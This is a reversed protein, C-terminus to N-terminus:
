AAPPRFPGPLLPGCHRNAASCHPMWLTRGSMRQRDHQLPESDVADRLEAETLTAEGAPCVQTAVGSQLDADTSVKTSVKACGEHVAAQAHSLPGSPEGLGWLGLAIVVAALLAALL